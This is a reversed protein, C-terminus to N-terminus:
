GSRSPWDIAVRQPDEPDVAVRLFDGAGLGDPLHAAPIECGAKYPLGTAPHVELSVSLRTGSEDTPEPAALISATASEGRLLLDKEAADAAPDGGGNAAASMGAMAQAYVEDSVMGSAHLRELEGSANAMTTEIMAVTDADILGSARLEELQGRGTVDGV